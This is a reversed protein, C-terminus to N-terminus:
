KNMNAVFNMITSAVISASQARHPSEGMPSAAMLAGLIAEMSSEGNQKSQYFAMGAKILDDLGLSQDSQTNGTSQGTLGSLLSGLLDGSHTEQSQAESPGSQGTLSSLLSSMLDGGGQTQQPQQPESPASQGTLGSLISGLVDSDQPQPKPQPKEAGLLSQLLVGITDENLDKDTFKKAANSLNQAYLKASGSDAKKEVVESAYALQKEVPAGTKESVANQILNFIQVMNDGHNHNYDDAANLPEKKNALQQTVTSFLSKLDVTSAM